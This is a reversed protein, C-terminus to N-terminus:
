KIKAVNKLMMENPAFNEGDPQMIQVGIGMSEKFQDEIEGVTHSKKITIGEVRKPCVSALTVNMDARKAGRGTNLSKYVVLETGFQDKFQKCLKDIHMNGNVEIDKLGLIMDLIGMM